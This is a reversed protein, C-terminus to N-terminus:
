IVCMIDYNQIEYVRYDPYGEESYILKGDTYIGPWILSFEKQKCASILLKIVDVKYAPSFLVDIDKIISQAPLSDLVKMFCKELQMTRRNPKLDILEAAILKNAAVAQTAIESTAKCYIVLRFIAQNHLMKRYEVITGM